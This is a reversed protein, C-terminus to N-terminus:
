GIRVLLQEIVDSVRRQRLARAERLEPEDSEGLEFRAVSVPGDKRYGDTKEDSAFRSRLIALSAEIVAGHKGGRESRFAEAVAAIDKPAHEICYILDHADKREFRQDFALSKLCTFSILNAHKIKETAVGNGGLLEAQIETVQCLDFVISSHPVNLASITGESPLPQVKGGVLDPADALLELVMLAGHETRTQWRWSLKQGAQNVARAFGMKKLNDELTHYADTDALVQLDIVIDVDLTGAHAPVAPPRKAVLYRPTLGGILYVSDKWPGLGRLLTVLVRECDVTYQDSYGDLTTPKVM